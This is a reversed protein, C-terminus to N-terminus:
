HSAIRSLFYVVALMVSGLVLGSGLMSGIIARGVNKGRATQFFGDRYGALYPLPQDALSVIVDMPILYKGRTGGISLIIAGLPSLLIVPPKLTALSLGFVIVGFGFGKGFGGGASMGEIKGADFGIKFLKSSQVSVMEEEDLKSWNGHNVQMHQLCAKETRRKTLIRRRPLEEAPRDKYLLYKESLCPNEQGLIPTAISLILILVLSTKM